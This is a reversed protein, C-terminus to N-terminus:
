RQFKLISFSAKTRAVGLVELGELKGEIHWYNPTMCILDFLDKGNLCMDYAVIQEELLTFIRTFQEIVRQKKDAEIGLLDLESRLEILHDPNPIVVLAIGGRVLIRGFELVNRPAFIDLVVRVSDEPFLMKERVSAVVFRVAKYRGAALRVAEKSIDMGFCCFDRQGLLSDLHSQLRGIFYGDGSGVDVV